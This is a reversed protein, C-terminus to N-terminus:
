IKRTAAGVAERDDLRISDPFEGREFYGIKEVALGLNELLKTMITTDFLMLYNPHNESYESPYTHINDIRGPWPDNQAVRQEYIPIFGEFCRMYPTDCIVFLKGGPMLLDYALSLSKIIQEPQMHQLVRSMLINAFQGPKYLASNTFCNPFEGALTTLNKRYLPDTGEKMLTLHPEHLDNAIVKANHLLVQKSAYGYASGVELNPHNQVRSAAKVFLKSYTDLSEIAVGCHNLTPFTKGQAWDLAAPKTIKNM